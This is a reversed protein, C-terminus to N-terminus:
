DGIGTGTPDFEGPNPTSAFQEPTITLDGNPYGADIGNIITSTGQLPTATNNTFDLQAILCDDPAPTFPTYTINNDVKWTGDYIVAILHDANTPYPAPTFRTHVSEASWLLWGTGTAADQAAIGQDLDGLPMWAPCSPPPEDTLLSFEDLKTGDERMAVQLTHQGETLTWEFRPGTLDAAEDPVWAPSDPTHWAQWGGGNVQLWFSNSTTDAPDGDLDETAITGELYYTADYPIDICYELVPTSADPPPYRNGLTGEPVWAFSGGSAGADGAVEFGAEVETGLEAEWTDFCPICQDGGTYHATYTADAVPVTITHVRDGGDSWHSFAYEINGVCLVMPAELDHEFGVATDIVFPAAHTEGSVIVTGGRMSNTITLDVKEPLIEITDSASLGEADTVVVTVRFGTSGRFDHGDAAVTFPYPNGAVDTLTPHEHEEHLFRVTWRYDASSLTGNPDNGIAELSLTQGATFTAMDLPSSISVTPPVGVQITITDSAVQVGNATVILQVDYSGAATYTHQPNAANSGNGDGFDWDFTIPDGDPDVVDATFDVTLPAQSGQMPDASISNVVPPSDLTGTYRVRRLQYSNTDYDFRLYYIHGDSPGVSIWVPKAGNILPIENVSGVSGNPLVEAWFMTEDAWDGFLYSGYVEPPMASGYYREGGTISRNRCCGGASDHDYFYWPAEVGPPCNPGNKPPGLPGECAPWGYNGGPVIINVEEYAQTATNGGVDGVWHEGTVPDVWSRFPNRLGHAYIEDLDSPSPNPSPPNAPTSGDDNLRIVKGFVNDHDQSQSPILGDGVTLLLKGELDFELSGGVHYAQVHDPGPNEWIQLPSQAAYSASAENLTFRWIQLRGDPHQGTAANQTKYVFFHHNTAFDPHVALDLAGREGVTSVDPVTFITTVSWGSGPDVIAVGGWRALVLLRGDPMWEAAVSGGPVTAVFEDLFLNPDVAAASKPSSTVGLMM